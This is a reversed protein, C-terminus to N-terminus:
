EALGNCESLKYIYIGALGILVGIALKKGGFVWQIQQFRIAIIWRLKVLVGVKSRM